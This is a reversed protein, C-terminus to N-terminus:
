SKRLVMCAGGKARLQACVKNAEPRSEASVSVQYFTRTGRSRLIKGDVIPDQNGLVAAFRNMAEAYKSLATSRSFGAALQVSWPKRTAGDVRAELAALYTGPRKVEAM